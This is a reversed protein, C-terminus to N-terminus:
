KSILIKNLKHRNGWFAMPEYDPYRYSGLKLEIEWGNEKIWQEVLRRVSIPSGECINVTGSNPYRVALEVILRAVEHVPLYDRLQEGGSMDFTRDGRAVAERLQTFLSTNSQGDGFMYFLRVWTHSFSQTTKLFELQRRLMDKAFGYPTEPHTTMEESLAGFQKGYEFCTGTVLLSQLGAMVLGKLFHYQRALETEFHYLSKYNPLGEWALHIVRDPCGFREFCETNSDAIDWEVIRISKELGNLCAADRTVAIVEIPLRALQASVHRGVFGSAGTVVIKM